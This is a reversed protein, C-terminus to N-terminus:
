IIDSHGTRVDKRCPDTLSWRWRFDEHACARERNSAGNALEHGLSFTTTSLLAEIVSRDGVSLNKSHNNMTQNEQSAVWDTGM